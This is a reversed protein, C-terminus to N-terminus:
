SSNMTSISVRLELGLGRKSPGEHKVKVEISRPKSLSSQFM